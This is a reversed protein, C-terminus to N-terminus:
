VRGGTVIPSRRGRRSDKAVVGRERDAVLTRGRACANGGSKIGTWPVTALGYGPRSSPTVSVVACVGSRSPAFSHLPKKTRNTELKSWLTSM